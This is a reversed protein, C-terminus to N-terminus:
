TQKRMPIIPAIKKYFAIGNEIVQWQADSLETVDGSICMRGLFTNAVSDASRPLSHRGM